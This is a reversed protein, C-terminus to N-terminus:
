LHIVRDDRGCGFLLNGDVPPLACQGRRACPPVYRPHNCENPDFTREVPAWANPQKRM